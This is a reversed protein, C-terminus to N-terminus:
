RRFWDRSAQPVLLLGGILLGAALRLLSSGTTTSLTAVAAVVNLGALFVAVYQAGRRRKAVGFALLGFLVASVGALVPLLSGVKVLAEVVAVALLVVTGVAFLAVVAGVAAPMRAAAKQDAM